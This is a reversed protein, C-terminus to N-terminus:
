ARAALAVLERAAEGALLALELLEAALRRALAQAGHAVAEVVEEVLGVGAGLAGEELAVEALGDLALPEVELAGRARPPDGDGLERPEQVQVLDRGGRAGVDAAGVRAAAGAAGRALAGAPGPGVAPRAYLALTDHGPETVKGPFPSGLD